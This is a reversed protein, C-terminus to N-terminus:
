FLRLWCIAMSLMKKDAVCNTNNHGFEASNCYNKSSLSFVFFPQYQLNYIPFKCITTNQDTGFDAIPPTKSYYWELMKLIHILKSVKSPTALFYPRESRKLQGALPGSSPELEKFQPPPPSM